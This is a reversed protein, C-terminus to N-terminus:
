RMRIRRPAPKQVKGRKAKGLEVIKGQSPTPKESKREAESVERTASEVERMRDPEPILAIANRLPSRSDEPAYDLLFGPTTGLPPALRRLWKDSLSRDGSELLSIVSGETGIISALQAQTMGRYERWARLHNKPRPEEGPRQM